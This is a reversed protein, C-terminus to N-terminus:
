RQKAFWETVLDRGIIQGLKTVDATFEEELQHRLEPSLPEPEHPQRSMRRAGFRNALRATRAEGLAAPLARGSVWRSAPNRLLRRYARGIRGRPRYSANHADFSEPEFSDDVELFALAKRFEVATQASFDDFVIVHLQGRNFFGLWRELQDGLLANDRYAVGWGQHNRPLRKGQRRDDDAAIAEAFDDIWESDTAIRQGHLSYVLDVPNRVMAILRSDPDFTHVLEPAKISMLYNTSSEGLWKQNQADAFLSLYESEREPYRLVRGTRPVVDPAFYGPEKVRSMFVEPHEQLYRHLSTTGSKPAGILFLNPRRPM